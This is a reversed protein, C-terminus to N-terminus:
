CTPLVQRIKLIKKVLGIPPVMKKIEEETLIMFAEGDVYNETSYLHLYKAESVGNFVEECFKDPIGEAKLWNCLEDVSKTAMSAVIIPGPAPPFSIAPPSDAM